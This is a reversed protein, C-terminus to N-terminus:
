IPVVATWCTAGFKAKFKEGIAEASSQKHFLAFTTSGSGSMLTAAAGHERLFEQYLALVPYKELAPTELANYFERGATALDATQLLSVLKRARGPQGQLAAPFRALERYAWPTSIGFGPHILFFSAGRLAAFDDLPEVQEGRGAALAPQRQLFFNVDSGLTAAIVHLQALRLPQGFLENLGLLTTAANGSGGGLGAAMPIHKELHISVGDNIRASELFKSAARHVLNTADTALAPDSCTLQIGKGRRTFALRDCLKVPHFVTELEHFGDARKGLINLLLNVKCPSFKELTM